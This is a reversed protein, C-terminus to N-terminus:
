GGRSQRKFIDFSRWKSSLISQDQVNVHQVMQLVVRVTPYQDRGCDGCREVKHFQLPSTSRQKYYTLPEQPFFIKEVDTWLAGIYAHSFAWIRRLPQFCKCSGYKPRGSWLCERWDEDWQRGAEDNEEAGEYICVINYWFMTIKTYCRQYEQHSPANCHVINLAALYLELVQNTGNRVNNISWHM